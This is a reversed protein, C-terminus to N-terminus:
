RSACAIPRKIETKMLTNYRTPNPKGRALVTDRDEAFYALSVKKTIM